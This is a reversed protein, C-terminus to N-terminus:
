PTERALRAFAQLMIDVNAIPIDSQMRHSAGLVIGSGDDALSAVCHEIAQLVQTPSGEPLVAQTSIGGYCALRNGFTKRLWCFDLVEPQAPNQCNLGIDVLDPLIERIDGDSHMIIPLGASRFPAFMRELRPRFLKRWTRPSFLLGRQAGYDDGFYAGDVGLDIYRGILAIQIETIRQLLDEVWLPDLALDYNLQEYGRLSWAREFLCFGLNPVVFCQSKNAAIAQRARDMLGPSDPDPWPIAELDKSEALPAHVHWYGETQTSWGAGWWDYRVTGDQSFPAQQNIDVRLLHNGLREPLQAPSVGLHDCLLKGMDATYNTQTPLHDLPQRFVARRVRERKSLQM